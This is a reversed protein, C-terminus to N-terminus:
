GVERREVLARAKRLIEATLRQGAVAQEVLALDDGSESAIASMALPSQAAGEMRSKIRSVLHHVNSAQQSAFSSAVRNIQLEQLAPERLAILYAFGAAVLVLSALLSLGAIRYLANGRASIGQPNNSAGQGKKGIGATAKKNKLKLM